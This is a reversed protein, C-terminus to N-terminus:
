SGEPKVCQAMRELGSTVADFAAEMFPPNVGPTRNDGIRRDLTFSDGCLEDLLPGVFAWWEWPESTNGGDLSGSDRSAYWNESDVQEFEFRDPAAEAMRKCYERIYDNM